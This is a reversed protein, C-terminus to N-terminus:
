QWPQIGRRNQTDARDDGVCRVSWQQLHAVTAPGGAARHVRREPGARGATLPGQRPSGGAGRAEEQRGQRQARPPAPALRGSGAPARWAPRPADPLGAAGMRPSLLSTPDGTPRGLGPWRPWRRRRCCAQGDAARGLLGDAWAPCGPRRGHRGQRVGEDDEADGQVAEPAANVDPTTTGSGNAIRVRRAGDIISPDDREQPTMSRIIAEVQGIQGDDIPRGGAQMDKRCARAHLSMMGRSSGM